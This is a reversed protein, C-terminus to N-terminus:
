DNLADVLAKLKKLGGVESAWRKVKLITAVPDVNGTAAVNTVLQRAKKHRAQRGKMQGKVFYILSDAVHVGKAALTSIIDKTPIQPNTKLLQRIEESRNVGTKKKAM